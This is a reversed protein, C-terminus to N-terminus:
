HRSETVAELDADPVVRYPIRVRACMALLDRFAPVRDERIYVRLISQGRRLFLARCANVGYVKSEDRKGM